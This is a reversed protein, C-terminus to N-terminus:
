WMTVRSGLAYKMSETGIAITQHCIRSTLMATMARDSHMMSMGERMIERKDGVDDIRKSYNKM